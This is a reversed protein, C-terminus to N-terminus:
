PSQYRSGRSPSETISMRTNVFEEGGGGWLTARKMRSIDGEQERKKEGFDGRGDRSTTM